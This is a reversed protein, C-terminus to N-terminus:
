QEEHFRAVLQKLYEFHRASSPLHMNKGVKLSRVQLESRETLCLSVELSILQADRSQPNSRYIATNADNVGLSPQGCYPLVWSITSPTETLNAERM